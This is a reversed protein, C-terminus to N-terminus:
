GELFFFFSLNPLFCNLFDTLFFGLFTSSEKFFFFIDFTNVLDRLKKVFADVAM